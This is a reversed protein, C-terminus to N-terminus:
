PTRRTPESIHILSLERVTMRSVKLDSAMQRETPLRDGETLLGDRIPQELLQVVSAVLSSGRLDAPLPGELELKSQKMPPAGGDPFRKTKARPRLANPPCHARFHEIVVANSHNRYRRKQQGRQKICRRRIFQAQAPRAPRPALSCAISAGVLVM